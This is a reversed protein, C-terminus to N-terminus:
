KGRNRFLDVYKEVDSVASADFYHEIAEVWLAREGAVMAACLDDRTYAHMTDAVKEVRHMWGGRPGKDIYIKDPADTM